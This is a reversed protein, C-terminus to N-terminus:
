FQNNFSNYEDTEYAREKWYTKKNILNLRLEDRGFFKMTLSIPVLMIFFIIGMIFPSFIMGIFVGIKMWLKNFPLLLDDQILTVTFILFSLILFLILANTNAIIYFYFSTIAFVLTFFLGFKRNSPLHENDNTHM